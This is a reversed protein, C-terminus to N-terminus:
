KDKPNMIAFWQNPNDPVENVLMSAMSSEAKLIENKVVPIQWTDDIEMCQSNPDVICWPAIVDGMFPFQGHGDARLFTSMKFMLFGGDFFYNYTSSDKYMSSEGPIHNRNNCEVLDNELEHVRNPNFQPFYGLSMLSDYKNYNKDFFKLAKPLEAAMTCGYANGLQIVVVDLPVDISKLYQIAQQICQYHNNTSYYHTRDEPIFEYFNGWHKDAIKKYDSIVFNRDVVNCRNANIANYMFLPLGLNGLVLLNKHPVSRSHSGVTQIVTVHHAKVSPTENYM